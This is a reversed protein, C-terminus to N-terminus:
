QLLGGDQKHQGNHNAQGAVIHEATGAALGPRCLLVARLARRKDLDGKRRDERGFRLGAFPEVIRFANGAVAAVGYSLLLDRRRQNMDNVFGIVMAVFRKLPRDGQTDPGVM